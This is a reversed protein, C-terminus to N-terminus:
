ATSISSSTSRCDHAAALARRAAGQRSQVGRAQRRRRREGGDVASGFRAARHRGRCFLQHRRSARVPRDQHHRAREQVRAAVVGALCATGRRHDRQRCAFRQAPAERDINIPSANIAGSFRAPHLQLAEVKGNGLVATMARGHLLEVGEELMDHLDEPVAPMEKPNTEVTIMTVEVAGQRLAERACDIATNGGGIVAVRAGLKVKSTGMGIDRLFPLGYLVGDKNEGEARVSNPETLGVALM